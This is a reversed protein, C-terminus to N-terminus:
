QRRAREDVLPHQRRRLQRLEEGVQVILPELARQQQDVAAERGVRERRPRQRVRVAEDGVVALDVGDLAVLVPHAGAFRHEVPRHEGADVPRERDARRASRVRGAEVLDEFQEVESAPRDVVGHQHHDGLRPLVVVLQVGGVPVEVAEVRAHHLRPVTGGAHREGVARHDAGHEVAVAQPRAAVPDGVVVDDHHCGLDPDDVDVRRLHDRLAAELRAAHEEDVRGLAPDDVVLLDLRREGGLVGVALPQRLAEDLEVVQRSTLVDHEAVVAHQTALLEEAVRVLLELDDEGRHGGLAGLRDARHACVRRDGHQRRARAQQEVVERLEERLDRVRREVGDTLLDDRRHRRRDAGLVVQEPRAGGTTELESQRERDDVVVLQGLDDM